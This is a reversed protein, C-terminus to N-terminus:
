NSRSLYKLQYYKHAFETVNRTLQYNMGAGIVMGIVPVGQILKRRFLLIFLSKLVQKLPQELWTDNTLEESGEYFFQESGEDLEELLSEWGKQQMRKPLTAAHFVKLSTMMEYPTNVEYGYTMAILQIARLNIIAMAPIDIGLLLIGGTATLGGQTFSYLRQKAMQQNTLYILQDITLNNLDALENIEVKFMRAAELIRQRADIQAQSGQIFAHLHFLWSDLKAYFQKRIQDPIVQLSKGLWKDYTMGFDTPEYNFLQQEWQKIESLIQQERVSLAM